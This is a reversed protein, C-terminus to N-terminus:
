KGRFTPHRKELFASAGERLDDTQFLEEFARSEARYGNGGETYAAKVCGPLKALALPAKLQIKALLEQSYKILETAPVVRNVLGIRYAESASIIEGTMMLELARGSGVLRTLRQTGGYGPILGLNVEPQGFKAEESAIRIHCAMALECGGGVAFGNIAALVPKPSDELRQFIRQGRASLQTGEEPSLRLFESIDAGAVFAKPGSGTILVTKIAENQYIDEIAETLEELVLHNLANLKEPRNFTITFIGEQLDTKLTQYM